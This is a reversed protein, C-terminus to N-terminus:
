MRDRKLIRERRVTQPHDLEFYRGIAPRVRHRALEPDCRVFGPPARQLVSPRLRIATTTADESGDLQFSVVRSDRPEIVRICLAHGPHATFTIDSGPALRQAVPGDVKGSRVRMRVDVLVPNDLESEVVLISPDPWRGWEVTTALKVAGPLLILGLVAVWLKPRRPWRLARPGDGAGPREAGPREGRSSM